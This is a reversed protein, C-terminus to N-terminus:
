DCAVRYGHIHTSCTQGTNLHEHHGSFSGPVAAPSATQIPGSLTVDHHTCLGSRYVAVGPSCCQTNQLAGQIYVDCTESRADAVM